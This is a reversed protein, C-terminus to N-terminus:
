VSQAIAAWVKIIPPLNFIDWMENHNSKLNGPGNFESPAPVTCGTCHSHQQGFQRPKLDRYLCYINRKGFVDLGDKPGV